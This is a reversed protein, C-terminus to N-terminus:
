IFSPLSLCHWIVLCNTCEQKTLMRFLWGEFTINVTRPNVFGSVLRMSRIIVFEFLRSAESLPRTTTLEHLEHKDVVHGVKCFEITNNGKGM